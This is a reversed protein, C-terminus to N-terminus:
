ARVNAVADGIAEALRECGAANLGAMSIRGDQARCTGVM